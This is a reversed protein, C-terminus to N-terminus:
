EHAGPLTVEPLLIRTDGWELRLLCTARTMSDFQFEGSPEIPAVRASDEDHLVCFADDLVDEAYEDDPIVQGILTDDPTLALDIDYPHARFLLRPGAAETGRMAPVPQRGLFDQVLSAVLLRLRGGPAREAATPISLLSTHLDPPVPPLPGQELGALMRQLRAAREACASCGSELHSLAESPTTRALMDLLEEHTPCPM